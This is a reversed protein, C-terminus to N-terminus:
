SHWHLFLKILCDVSRYCLSFLSRNCNSYVGITVLGSRFCVTWIQDPRNKTQEHDVWLPYRVIQRITQKTQLLDTCVTLTKRIHPNKSSRNKWAGVVGANDSHVMIHHNRIRRSSFFFFLLFHLVAFEAYGIDRSVKSASQWDPELKFAEAKGEIVIGIGFSTSAHCFLGFSDDPAAMTCLQIGIRKEGLKEEWWRLDAAQEELVKWAVKEHVKKSEMNAMM